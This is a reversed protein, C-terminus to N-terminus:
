AVDGIAEDQTQWQRGCAGGGRHTLVTPSSPLNMASSHRKDPEESVTMEFGKRVTTNSNKTSSQEHAQGHM